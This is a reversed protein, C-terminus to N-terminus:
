SSRGDAFDSRRRSFALVRGSLDGPRRCVVAARRHGSGDVCRILPLLRTRGRRLRTAITPALRDIARDLAVHLDHAQAGAIVPGHGRLWLVIRCIERAENGWGDAKDLRVQALSIWSTCLALATHMRSEVYRVVPESLRSSLGCVFVRM